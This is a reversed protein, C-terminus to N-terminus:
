KLNNKEQFLKKITIIAFIFGIFVAVILLAYSIVYSCGSSPDSMESAIKGFPGAIIGLILNVILFLSLGIAWTTTDDISLGIIFLILGIFVISVLSFFLGLKKNIKKIQGLNEHPIPIYKVQEVYCYKEQTGDFIATIIKEKHLTRIVANLEDHTIKPYLANLKIYIDDKSMLRNEKKLLEIIKNKM